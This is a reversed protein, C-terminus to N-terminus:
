WRRGFVVGIAADREGPVHGADIAATAEVAIKWKRGRVEHRLTARMERGEPELRVRYADRLRRGDETHGNELHFVGTGAEARLPQRVTLSTRDNGARLALASMLVPSTEFVASREHASASMAITATAKM